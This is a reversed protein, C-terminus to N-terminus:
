SIRNQTKEKRALVRNERKNTTKFIIVVRTVRFYRSTEHVQEYGPITPIRNHISWETCAIICTPTGVACATPATGLGAASFCFAFKILLKFLLQEEEEEEEEKEEGM